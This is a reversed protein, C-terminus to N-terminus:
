HTVSVESQLEEQQSGAIVVAASFSGNIRWPSLQQGWKQWFEM